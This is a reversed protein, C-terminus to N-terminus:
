PQDGYELCQPADEAGRRPQDPSGRFRLEDCTARSLCALSVDLRHSDLREFFRVCIGYDFYSEEEGEPNLVPISGCEVLLWCAEEPTTVITPECLPDASATACQQRVGPVSGDFSCGTMTLVVAALPFARMRRM